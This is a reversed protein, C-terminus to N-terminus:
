LCCNKFKRGSGCSCIDNRGLKIKTLVENMIKDNEQKLRLYNAAANGKLKVEGHQYKLDDKNQIEFLENHNKIFKDILSLGSINKRINNIQINEYNISPDELFLIESPNGKHPTIDILENNITKYIAHFEAEVFVKPHLWITWGLVVDGGNKQIYKRVNNICELPQADKDVLVKVFKAEFAKNISNCFAKIQKDIKTPTIM